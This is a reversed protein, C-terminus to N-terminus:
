DKNIVLFFWAESALEANQIIQWKIRIRTFQAAYIQMKSRKADTQHARLLLLLTTALYSRLISLFSYHHASTLEILPILFHYLGHMILLIITSFYPTSIANICFKVLESMDKLHHLHSKAFIHLQTQLPFASPKIIGSAEMMPTDFIFPDSYCAANISNKNKTKFFISDLLGLLHVDGWSLNVDFGCFDLECCTWM